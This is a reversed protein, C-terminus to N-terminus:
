LSEKTCSMNFDYLTSKKISFFCKNFCFENAIRHQQKKVKLVREKAREMKVPVQSPQLRASSQLFLELTYVASSLLQFICLVATVCVTPKSRKRKQKPDKLPRPQISHQGHSFSRCKWVKEMELHASHVLRQTSSLGFRQKLGELKETLNEVQLYCQDLSISRLASLAQLVCLVVIKLKFWVVIIFYSLYSLRQM